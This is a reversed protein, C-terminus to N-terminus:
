LQISGNSFILSAPGDWPEQFTSEFEYFDKLEKSMSTDKEWPEPIMMMITEELSRGNLYMFELFNDFMASDSSEKPILPIVKKLDDKFKVM